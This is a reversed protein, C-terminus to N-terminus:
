LLIIQEPNEVATVGVEPADHEVILELPMWQELTDAGSRYHDMVPRRRLDGRHLGDAALLLAINLTDHALSQALAVFLPQMGARGGEAVHCDEGPGTLADDLWLMGDLM